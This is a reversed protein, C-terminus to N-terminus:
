IARINDHMYLSSSISHKIVQYQKLLGGLNCRLVEVPTLYIVSCLMSPQYRVNM